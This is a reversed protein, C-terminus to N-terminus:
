SKIQSAHGIRGASERLKSLEDVPTAGHDAEDRAHTGSELAVKKHLERLRGETRRKYERAECCGLSMKESDRSPQVM